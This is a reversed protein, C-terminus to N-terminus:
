GSMLVVEQLTKGPVDVKKAQLTKGPVDVKESVLCSCWRRSLRVLSATGLVFKSVM